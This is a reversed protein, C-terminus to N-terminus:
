YLSSIAKAAVQHIDATYNLYVNSVTAVTDGLVHAVLSVDGTESLLLTAFTHRLAHISRGPFHVHIIRSLRKHVSEMKGLPFVTGTINVPTARKWDKLADLIVSSAPITRNSRVTKCPTIESKEHSTRALQQRITITKKQWNIADWPLGAIEGYRMGTNAALVVVMKGLPWTDLIKLLQALETRSFARLVAPTKDTPMQIGQAPNVKIIKYMKRAHELVASVNCLFGKRTSSKVKLKLLANAIDAPTLERIPIDAIPGLRSVANGYNLLTNYALIKQKDREFIPFFGRLSIDKLRVDDTLGATEKVQALLADQYKRAERQTKFGQKTKQKWRAGVKYSLVLCISGNKERYSFSYEM